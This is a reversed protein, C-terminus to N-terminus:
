KGMRKLHANFGNRLVMSSNMAAHLALSRCMVALSRPDRMAANAGSRCDSQRSRSKEAASTCATAPEPMSRSMSRCSGCASARQNTSCPRCPIKEGM